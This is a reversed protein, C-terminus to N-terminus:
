GFPNIASIGEFPLFDKVNDTAITTIGTSLATAALYADFIKDGTLKHKQMLAIAIHHTSPDPAIVHCREAINGVATAAEVPSMPHPFKKHTLVRLSEFINQHAITMRGVHTQLFAQAAKHKPSSINIAYILVNSDVLIVKTSM